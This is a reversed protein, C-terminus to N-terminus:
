RLKIFNAEWKTGNKNIGYCQTSSGEANECDISMSNYIGNKRQCILEGIEIHLTQRQMSALAEGKCQDENEIVVAEGRGDDGFSFTMQVAEHTRSNSLGTRCLWRGKMFSADTADEPIILGGPTKAEEPKEAKKEAVVPPVCLATHKELQAKLHTIQSELESIQALADTKLELAEPFPLKFLSYGSLPPLFGFSTCLLLCLLLLPLLPLLWWLCGSGGAAIAKPAEPKIEKSPAGTLPPPIPAKKPLPSMLRSLNMAQVGPSGPAFGWCTSVPQEGVVYLDSESPISLALKLINGRTIKLPEQTQILDEAFDRIESGMKQMNELIPKRQEEPLDIIRKAEGQVPTYWDIMGDSANEVPKAFLLVYEDGFNRLLMDRIQAFSAYAMIGKFALASMDAKPTSIILNSAM